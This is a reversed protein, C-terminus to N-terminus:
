PTHCCEPFTNHRLPGLGLVVFVRKVGAQKRHYAMVQQAGREVGSWHLLVSEISLPHEKRPGLVDVAV